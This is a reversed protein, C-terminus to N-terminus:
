QKMIKIFDNNIKLFYIGLPLYEVSLENLGPNINCDIVVTGKFDIIQINQTNNNEIFIKNFFPNPYCNAIINKHSNINVIVDPQVRFDIVKNEINLGIKCIPLGYGPAWYSTSKMTRSDALSNINVWFGWYLVKVTYSIQYSSNELYSGSYNSFINYGTIQSIFDINLTIRISDPQVPIGLDAATLGLQEPTFTLPISQQHSINDGITLPFHLIDMPQSFPIPLLNEYIKIVIGVLWLKSDNLHLVIYYDSEKLCLDAEPFIDGLGLENISIAFTTDLNYTEPYYYDWGNSTLSEIPQPDNLFSTQRYVSFSGCTIFDDKDYPVQGFLSLSLSTFVTITILKICVSMCM